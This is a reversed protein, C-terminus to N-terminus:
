RLSIVEYKTAGAVQGIRPLHIRTDRMVGIYDLKDCGGSHDARVTPHPAPNHLVSDRPYAAYRAKNGKDPPPPPPQRHLGSFIWLTRLQREM